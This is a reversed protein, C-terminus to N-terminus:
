LLSVLLPIRSFASSSACSNARSLIPSRWRISIMFCNQIKHRWHFAIGLERCFRFRELLIIASRLVVVPSAPETSYDQEGNWVAWDGPERYYVHVLLCAFRWDLVSPPKSWRQRSFRSRPFRTLKGFANAFVGQQNVLSLFINEATAGVLREDRKIRLGRKPLAVPASKSPRRCPHCLLDRTFWRRNAVDTIDVPARQLEEPEDFL